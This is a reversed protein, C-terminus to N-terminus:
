FELTILWLSLRIVISAPHVESFQNKRLPGHCGGLAAGMRFSDIQPQGACDITKQKSSQNILQM